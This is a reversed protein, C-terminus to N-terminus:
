GGDIEDSANAAYEDEERRESESEGLTKTAKAVREEAADLKSM